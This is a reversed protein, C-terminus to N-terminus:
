VNQIVQKTLEGDIWYNVNFYDPRLSGSSYVPNIDVFVSKGEVLSAAWEKEMNYWEGGARNTKSSQAVLNDLEGSANFQAGLLHGGDDGTLRDERGAVSQAYTSRKGKELVLQGSASMIRGQADTAYIYGNQDIYSINPKLVKRRGEKTFQQGYDVIENGTINDILVGDKYEIRDSLYQFDEISSDQNYVCDNHVLIHYKSVFYTHSEEVELNYVSIPEGLLEKSLALIPIPNGETNTLHHETTLASAEVWGSEITYFPHMETSIIVDNPLTIHMLTTAENQFTQLVFAFDTSSTEMNRSLVKSGVAITEIKALGTETEVLTGETFCVVKFVYNKLYWDTGGMVGGWFASKGVEGWDIEGNLLLQEIMSTGAGTGAGISVARLLGSLGPNCVGGTAGNVIGIVAGTFASLAYDWGSSAVGRSIDSIGRGAVYASSSGAVSLVLMAPVGAGYTVIAVGAIVIVSTVVKTAVDAADFKQIVPADPFDPNYTGYEYAYFHTETGNLIIVPVSSNMGLSDMIADSGDPSSEADSPLISDPYTYMIFVAFIDITPIPSEEIFQIESPPPAEGNERALNYANIEDLNVTESLEKKTDAIRKATEDETEERIEGHILQIKKEAQFLIYKGSFYIGETASIMMEKHSQLYIGDEDNLIIKLDPPADPNYELGSFTMEEPFLSMRKGHETVLARQEFTESGPFTEEVGGNTRICNVAKASDEEDSSFYLSVRTGVQPMLYMLNGTTPVWEYPYATEIEQQEDIDLHIKLTEANTQLVTGLLSMGSIRRNQHRRKWFFSEQGLTYIYELIGKRIRCSKGCIKYSEELFTAQEGIEANEYCIVETTAFDERTREEQSGGEQYFKEGMHRTYESSLLIHNKSKEPMGFYFKAEGRTLEPVLSTHFRSALRRIFNWDTELFQIIPKEIPVDYAEPMIFAAHETDKLVTNILTRYTMSVDQFSRSKEELDLLITGSTAEIQLLFTGGAEQISARQIIGSFIKKSEEEVSIYVEKGELTQKLIDASQVEGSVRLTAHKNPINKVELEQIKKIGLFPSIFINQYTAYNM